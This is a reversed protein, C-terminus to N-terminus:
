RIKKKDSYRIEEDRCRIKEKDRMERDSWGRIENDRQKM